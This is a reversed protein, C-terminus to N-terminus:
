NEIDDESDAALLVSWAKMKPYHDFVVKFVALIPITLIMGIIGTVAGMLVLGIIIVLPNINLQNGMIKPTIINGELFQVVMYLAAVLLPYILSDKTILAVFIPIMAGIIVGIYPILTLLASLIGLFLAYDIGIAYLGSTTLTAIILIVIFLGKLYSQLTNKIDSLMQRGEEMDDKDLYTQFFKFLNNRYMLLFFVYIPCTIFFVVTDKLGVISEKIIDSTGKRAQKVTADIITSYKDLHTNLEKDIARTPNDLLQSPKKDLQPLDNVIDNAEIALLFIVGTVIATSFLVVLLASLAKGLGIRELFSIVPMSVMALFASFVIPMLITHGFFLLTVILGIIFLVKAIHDIKSSTRSTM